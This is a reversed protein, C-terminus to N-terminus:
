RFFSVCKRTAFVVHSTLSIGISLQHTEIFIVIQEPNNPTKAKQMQKSSKKKPAARQTNQRGRGHRISDCWNRSSQLQTRVKESEDSLEAEEDKEPGFEKDNLQKDSRRQDDSEHVDDKINEAM